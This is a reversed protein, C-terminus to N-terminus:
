NKRYMIVAGLVIGGSQDNVSTSVSFKIDIIWFEPQLTKLWATLEAQFANADFEIISQAFTENDIRNM